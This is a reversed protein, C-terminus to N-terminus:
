KIRHFQLRVGTSSKGDLQAGDNSLILDDVFGWGEWRLTFKRQSPDTCEWRGQSSFLSKNMLTGDANITTVSGLGWNWDGTIASCIKEFESAQAHGALAAADDPFIELAQTYVQIASAFDKKNMAADADVMYKNFKDQQQQEFQAHQKEEEAKRQIESQTRAEEEIRLRNEEAAKQQAEEEARRKEAEAAKRKVEVQEAEQLEIQRELELLQEDSPTEAHVSVALQVLFMILMVSALRHIDIRQM